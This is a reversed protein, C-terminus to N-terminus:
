LRRRLPGRLAGQRLFAALLAIVFTRERANATTAAIALVNQAHAPDERM